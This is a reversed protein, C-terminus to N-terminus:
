SSAVEMYEKAILELAFWVLKEVIPPHTTEVVQYDVVHAPTIATVDVGYEFAESEWASVIYVNNNKYFSKIDNLYIFGPWGAAAGGKVIDGALEKFTQWGGIQKIVANALGSYETAEMYERKLM